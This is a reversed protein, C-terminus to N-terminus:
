MTPAVPQSSLSSESARPPMSADVMSSRVYQSSGGGSMASGGGSTGAGSGGAAASATQLSPTGASPIGAVMRAYRVANGVVGAFDGAIVLHAIIPVLILCVAYVLSTIGLLLADAISQDTVTGAIGNQIINTVSGAQIAAILMCFAAYIAPWMAWEGLAKAYKAAYSGTIGSPGLAVLIPGVAFLVGGWFCFCLSLIKCAVIFVIIGVTVVAVNLLGVGGGTALKLLASFIGTGSSSTANYQSTLQTNWQTYIDPAAGLIGTAVWTGLAVVDNIFTPWYSIIGAAVVYKFTTVGFARTSPGSVFAEYIGMLFTVTLFAYAITQLAGTLSNLGTLAQNWASTVFLNTLFSNM